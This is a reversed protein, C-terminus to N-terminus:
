VSELLWGGDADLGHDDFDTEPRPSPMGKEADVEVESADISCGEDDDDCCMSASVDGVALGASDRLRLEVFWLLGPMSLFWSM